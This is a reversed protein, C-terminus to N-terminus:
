LASGDEKCPEVECQCNPHCQPLRHGSSFAESLKRVEGDNKECTPCNGSASVHATWKLHTVGRQAFAQLQDDVDDPEWIDKKVDYDLLPEAGILESDLPKHAEKAQKQQATPQQQKGQQPPQQGPIIPPAPPPNKAQDAKTKAMDTQAAKSQLDLEAGQRQEDEMDALRPVPVIDKSAVVIATDGGPIEKKGMEARTENITNSGNRIRIDQIKAIMDDSRYDAYRTNVRWDTIGMGQQLIRYNFKEFILQRLPDCANFQFSKEQSEGTGGGINGSEILGVLAPPVQYAALIEKCMQERGHLFDIDISGKGIEFLEAEDYLVLPVHANAQGTYNERLYVVFREAEAKPGPYKIWFNPRAGKRFFQRVWDAMRTDADVPGLIREIPSIAKKNAQADPFWWRIVENPAFSITDMSHTMNQVYQLVNGHQDLKYNMTICDIKHLSFPQGAKSVVEMYAEGYILLDTAISRVLQLFDDDPNVFHLLKDIRKRNEDSGKGQEVEEIIFGGSTIRKAIVDVCASIWVNNLYAKYLTEKREQDSLMGPGSRRMDPTIGLAENEDWALSFSRAKSSSASPRGRAENIEILPTREPVVLQPSRSRARNRSM